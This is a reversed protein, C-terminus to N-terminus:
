LVSSLGTTLSDSGNCSLKPNVKICIISTTLKNLSKNKAEKNYKSYLKNFITSRCIPLRIETSWKISTITKIIIVFKVNLM